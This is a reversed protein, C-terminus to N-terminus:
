FRCRIDLLRTDQVHSIDAGHMVHVLVLPLLIGLLRILLHLQENRLRLAFRDAQNCPNGKGGFSESGIEPFSEMSVQVDQLTM